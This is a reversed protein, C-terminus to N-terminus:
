HARRRFAGEAFLHVDVAQNTLVAVHEDTHGPVWPPRDSALQKFPHVRADGAEPWRRAQNRCQDKVVSLVHRDVPVGHTVNQHSRRGALARLHREAGEDCYQRAPTSRLVQPEDHDRPGVRQRILEAGKRVTQYINHIRGGSLRHLL